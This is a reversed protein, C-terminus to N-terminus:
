RSTFMTFYEASKSGSLGCDANFLSTALIEKDYRNKQKNITDNSSYLLIDPSDDNLKIISDEKKKPIIKAFFNSFGAKAKKREADDNIDNKNYKKGNLFKNQSSPSSIILPHIKQPIWILEGELQKLNYSSEPAPFLIKNLYM